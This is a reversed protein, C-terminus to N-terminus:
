ALSPVCIDFASGSVARGNPRGLNRAWGRLSLWGHNVNLGCDLHNQGPAAANGSVFAHQHRHAADVTGPFPIHSLSDDSAYLLLTEVRDCHIDITPEVKWRPTKVLLLWGLMKVAMGDAKVVHKLLQDQWELPLPRNPNLSIEGLLRGGDIMSVHMVKPVDVDDHEFADIQQLAGESSVIIQCQPDITGEFGGQDSGKSSLLLAQRRIFGDARVLRDVKRRLVDVKGKVVRPRGSVRYEIIVV